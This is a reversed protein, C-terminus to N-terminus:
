SVWTTTAVSGRQTAIEITQLDGSTWSQGSLTITIQKVQNVPVSWSGQYITSNVYVSSVIVDISGVNRVYVNVLNNSPAGSFFVGEVNLREQSALSRSSFFFGAGGQYAGFSTTAWVFLISSLVVVIVLMTLNAMITSIARRSGHYRGRRIRLNEMVSKVDQKELGNEPEPTSDREFIPFNEHLTEVPGVTLRM